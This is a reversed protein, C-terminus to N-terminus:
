TKKIRPWDRAVWRAVAQEDREMARKRPKQCSFGLAHLLRGIHDVHYSVGYGREILEAVRRCTWLDTPFGNAKAGKLLRRRLGNRQRAALRCPRGPAPRARLGAEGRREYAARWRRVSRPDVKLRRAIDTTSRGQRLLDVARRRRSELQRPSGPTRM